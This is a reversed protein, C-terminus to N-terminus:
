MHMRVVSSPPGLRVTLGLLSLVPPEFMVSVTDRNGEAEAVRGRLGVYGPLLGFLRFTVQLTDSRTPTM